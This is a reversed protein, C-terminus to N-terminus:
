RTGEAHIDTVTFNGCIMPMNDPNYPSFGSSWICNEGTDYDGVIWCKGDPTCIKYNVVANCRCGGILFSALLVGILGKM